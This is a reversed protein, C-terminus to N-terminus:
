ICLTSQECVNESPSVNANERACSLPIKEPTSGDRGGGFYFWAAYDSAPNYNTPWSQQEVVKRASKGRAGLIDECRRAREEPCRIYYVEKVLAHEKWQQSLDYIVHPCQNVAMLVYRLKSKIEDSAFAIACGDKTLVMEVLLEDNRHEESMFQFSWPYELVHAYCAGFDAGELGHEQRYIEGCAELRDKNDTVKSVRKLKKDAKLATYVYTLAWGGKRVVALLVDKDNKLAVSTYGLASSDQRIAALVVDKDAKLTASASDLATATQMVAALVVDKDARLAASVGGLM